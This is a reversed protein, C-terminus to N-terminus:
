AAEGRARTMAAGFYSWSERPFFLLTSGAAMEVWGLQLRGDRARSRDVGFLSRMQEEAPTGLTSIVTM